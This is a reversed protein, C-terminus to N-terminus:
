LLYANAAVLAAAEDAAALCAECATWSAECESFMAATFEVETEVRTGQIGVIHLARHQAMQVCLATKVENLDAHYYGAAVAENCPKEERGIIALDTGPEHSGPCDCAVPPGAAESRNQYCWMPNEVCRMRWKVYRM